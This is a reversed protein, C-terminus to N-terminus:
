SKGGWLTYENLDVEVDDEDICLFKNAGEVPFGSDNREGFGEGVGSGEGVFVFFAPAEGAFREEFKELIRGDGGGGFVQNDVLVDVIHTKPDSEGRQCGDPPRYLILPGLDCIYLCPNPLIEFFRIM